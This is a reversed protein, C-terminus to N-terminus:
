MIDRAVSTPRNLVEFLAEVWRDPAELMPYHGVGQLLQLQSGPAEEHHLRAVDGGVVPDETGWVFSLPLSTERLAGVWRNWFKWRDDLYHTIPAVVARGDSRELLEWMVALEAESLVSPDGWLRRMNRDFITRNILRATMDGFRSVLLHQVLRLRAKEIHVSGNCLTMSRLEVPRFGRNWRALLETAVSTGYDHAFVHGSEIGLERWVMLAVDTQEIISYSYDRPKDSLGFGVHDHLVVRYREALRPLVVHYDHSSTPYGHLVVLTPLERAGTDVVFVRRGGVDVYSGLAEWDELKM